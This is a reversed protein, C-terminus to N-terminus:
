PNQFLVEVCLRKPLCPEELGVCDGQGRKTGDVAAAAMGIIAPITMQALSALGMARLIM